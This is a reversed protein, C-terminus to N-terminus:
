RTEAERKAKQAELYNKIAPSVEDDALPKQQQQQQQSNGELAKIKTLLGEIMKGQEEIAKAFLENYNQNEM